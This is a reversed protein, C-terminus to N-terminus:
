RETIFLLLVQQLSQIKDEMVSEDPNQCPIPFFNIKKKPDHDRKRTRSVRGGEVPTLHVETVSFCIWGFGPTDTGGGGGGRFVGRLVTKRWGGGPNDFDVWPRTTQSSLPTKVSLSSVYLFCLYRVTVLGQYFFTHPPPTGNTVHWM